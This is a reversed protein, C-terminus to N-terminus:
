GLKPPKPRRATKIPLMPFVMPTNPLTGEVPEGLNTKHRSPLYGPEDDNPPPPSDKRQAM